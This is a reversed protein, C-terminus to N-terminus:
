TLLPHRVQRGLGAQVERRVVLEVIEESHATRVVIRVAPHDAAFRTLLHPLVYTSVQPAVALTLEGGGGTSVASVEAMGSALAEVAQEAYPIFANGADTLQVGRRTRVFLPQGLETELAQLRATLAPQTIRLADAARSVNGRRAVELFGQIQALQVSRM